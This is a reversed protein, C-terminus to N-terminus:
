TTKGTNEGSGNTTDGDYTDSFETRNKLLSQVVDDYTEEPKDKLRFLENRTSEELAITTHNASM